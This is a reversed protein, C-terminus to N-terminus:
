SLPPFGTVKRIVWVDVYEPLIDMKICLPHLTSYGFVLGWVVVGDVGLPFHSYLGAYMVCYLPTPRPTVSSLSYLYLGPLSAPDQQAACYRLHRLM